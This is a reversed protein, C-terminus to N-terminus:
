KCYKTLEPAIGTLGLQYAKTLDACAEARKGMEVEIMGRSYYADAFNANIEICKTFDKLAKDTQGTRKYVIGRNHFALAFEPNLEIAKSYDYLAGAGDGSRDRALGRNCYANPNKPNIEVATNLDSMAGKLDGVRGRFVGRSIRIQEKDPAKEITLNYFKMAEQLNNLNDYCIAINYIVDINNPNIWYSTLLDILAGKYNNKNQKAYAYGFYEDAAKPNIKLLIDYDKRALDPKGLKMYANGRGMYANAFDSKQSLVFNMDDLVGQYDGLSDRVMARNYRADIYAPDLLVAKNYDELAGKFNGLMTKANGRNSYVNTYNSDLKVVMDFDLLAQKANGVNAHSIGRNSYTGVHTPKIPLGNDFDKIAEVFKNQTMLYNGRNYFAVHARPSKIQTDTWLEFGNKWVQTREWTSYGLFLVYVISLLVIPIKFNAKNYYLYNIMVAILFVFGLAPIYMYRDAIIVDRGTFVIQLPLFINIGFILMGFMVFSNYRLSYVVLAVLGLALPVFGYWAGPPSQGIDVPFPYFASLSTPIGLKFLYTLMAYSAYVLRDPFLPYWEKGSIAGYRSQSYLSIIGFILAVALFPIKEYFVKLTKWKRNFFIDFAYFMIPLVMAQEKSGFSLLFLVFSIFLNSIKSTQIYLVYYISALLFFLSFLVVKIASVWAVSEVQITHLGFLLATVFSVGLISVSQIISKDGKNSLVSERKFILVKRILVFVLVTNSLHVIVSVLHYLFPKLQVSGYILALVSTSVPSYQGKFFQTFIAIFNSFSTSRLFENELIYWDDDWNVFDSSLSPFYAVFTVVILVLAPFLIPFKMLWENVFNFSSPNSSKTHSISKHIPQKASINKQQKM